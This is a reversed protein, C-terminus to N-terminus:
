RLYMKLVEGLRSPLINDIFQFLIYTSTLSVLVAPCSDGTAIAMRLVFILTNRSATNEAYVTRIISATVTTRRHAPPATLM